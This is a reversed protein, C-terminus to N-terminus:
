HSFFQWNIKLSILIILIFMFEKTKCSLLDSSCSKTMMWSGSEARDLAL